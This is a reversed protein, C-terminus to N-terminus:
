PVAQNRLEVVFEVVQDVAAEISGDTAYPLPIRIGDHTQKIVDKFSTGRLQDRVTQYGPTKESVVLWLPSVDPAALNAPIFEIAAYPGDEVDLYFWRLGGGDTLKQRPLVKRNELVKAVTRTARDWVDTLRSEAELTRAAVPPGAADAPAAPSTQHQPASSAPAVAAMSPQIRSITGAPDDDGQVIQLRLLHYEWAVNDLPDPTGPLRIPIVQIGRRKALEFENRVDPSALSTGSCLLLFTSANRIADSITQAYDTGAPVDRPAVWASIGADELASVYENAIALDKSSHSVFVHV